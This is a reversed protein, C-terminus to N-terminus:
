KNILNRRILNGCITSDNWNISNHYLNKKNAFFRVTKLVYKADRSLQYHSSHKKVSLKYVKGNPVHLSVNLSEFLNDLLLTNTILNRCETPLDGRSVLHETAVAVSHSFIQTASKVRIKKIKDPNIHEKTLKDLLRLEGFSKDAADVQQYFECKVIKQESATEYIMNKTLLNNRIGKILHSADYIPVISQGNLRIINHPWKEWKALIPKRIM